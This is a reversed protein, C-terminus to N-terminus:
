KKEFIKDIITPNDPVSLKGLAKNHWRRVTRPDWGLEDAIDTWRMNCIYRYQLILKEDTNSVKEFLKSLESKFALLKSLEDSHVKQLDAIKVIIDEYPAHENRSANYKEEYGPAAISVALERLEMLEEQHLRIRERLRYSQSLYDRITM